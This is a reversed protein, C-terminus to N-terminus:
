RLRSVLRGRLDDADELLRSRFPGIEGGPEKPRMLLVARARDEASRGLPILAVGLQRMSGDQLRLNEECYVIETSENVARITPCHFACTENVVPLVEFCRKGFWEEPALAKAPENVYVLEMRESVVVCAGGEQELFGWRLSADEKIRGEDSTM